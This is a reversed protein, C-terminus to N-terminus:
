PKLKPPFASYRKKDIVINFGNGKNHKFVAGIQKNNGEEDKEFIYFDPKIKQKEEPTNTM